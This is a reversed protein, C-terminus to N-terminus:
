PLLLSIDDGVQWPQRKIMISQFRGDVIWGSLWQHVHALPLAEFAPADVAAFQRVFPFIAMDALSATDGFLCPSQALRMDLESLFLCALRFHEGVESVEVRQPYKYRDLHHKFESDNRHILVLMEDLCVPEASLCMGPDNGALAWRMIDLSEDMVSGDPLHLVPVTAKPSIDLLAQPKDKLDVERVECQIAAYHLAMRARM